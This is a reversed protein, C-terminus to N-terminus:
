SVSGCIDSYSRIIRLGPQNAPNGWPVYKLAHTTNFLVVREKDKLWREERLRLTGALSAAGEHSSTVGLAGMRAQARRIEEASVAVATGGTERLISVILDGDPPHPVRMGTPSAGACHEVPKVGAGSRLASVIPACGEEQVSVLRPLEGRVWGLERLERFAKWLGIIGSGGGTLYVIVDPMTWGLQEAIELGMTKKGEARGPEKLTGVYFWGERVQGEEVIRGADHILGDIVYTAAGYLLCERVIYVPCDQPMLVYAEIGARAAAANGNSPVAAMRIGREHLLSVASAFGRAKFSVMPNQEERKIWVAALGWEKELAPMRLLPTGGEGLSVIKTKDEVPLLERYRWMTAERNALVTRPLRRIRELDYRVLLTGGCTCKGQLAFSREKGCAACTQVCKSM